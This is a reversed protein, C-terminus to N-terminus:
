KLECNNLSTISKALYMLTQGNYIVPYNSLTIQYAIMGFNMAEEFGM